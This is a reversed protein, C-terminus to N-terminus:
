LTSHEYLVNREPAPQIVRLVAHILSVKPKPCFSLTKSKRADLRCL